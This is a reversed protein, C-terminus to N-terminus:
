SFVWRHVLGGMIDSQMIFLEIKKGAVRSWSLGHARRAPRLISRIELFYGCGRTTLGQSAKPRQVRMLADPKRDHVLCDARQEATQWSCVRVGIQLSNTVVPFSGTWTLFASFECCINFCSHPIYRLFRRLWTLCKRKGTSKCCHHSTSSTITLSRPSDIVHMEQM